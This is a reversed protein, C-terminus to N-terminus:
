RDVHTVVDLGGSDSWSGVRQAIVKEEILLGLLGLLFEAADHQGLASNSLFCRGCMAAVLRPQSLLHRLDLACEHVLCAVCEGSATPCQSAHQALWSAVRRLRLLVPLISNALCSEDM